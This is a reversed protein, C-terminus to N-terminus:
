YPTHTLEYLWTEVQVIESVNLTSFPMGKCNLNFNM